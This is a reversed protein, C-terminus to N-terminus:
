PKSSPLSAHRGLHFLACALASPDDRPAKVVSRPPLSRTASLKEVLGASLNVIKAYPLDALLGDLALDDIM